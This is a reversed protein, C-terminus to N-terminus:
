TIRPVPGTCTAAFSLDNTTLLEVLYTCIKFKGGGNKFCLYPFRWVNGLGVAYGICSLLFDMKHSWTEREFIDGTEAAEKEGQLAKGSVATVQDLPMTSDVTARHDLEGSDRWSMVIIRHQGPLLCRNLKPAASVFCCNLHLRGM